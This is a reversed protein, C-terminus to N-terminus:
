RSVKGSGKKPRRAVTRKPARGPKTKGPGKQRFGESIGILVGSALTAFNQSLAHAAKAGTARSQRVMTQMQQQFQEITATVEAGTDTGTIKAQQLVEGWRAKITDDARAAAQKVIKLWEDELRELDHLAKKVHSEQFSEGQDSLQQLAIQNAEVAKRLADDMGALADSLAKEVDIKPGSAGLNVGETVLKLVQKIQSLSLERTQLAKLTLDRVTKRLNERQTMAESAMKKLVEDADILAKLM